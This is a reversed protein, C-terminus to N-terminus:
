REEREERDQGCAATGPGPVVDVRTYAARFGLREMNRQSGSGPTAESVVLKCGERAADALRARQLAAQVGRRRYQPLTTDGSFWAIDGNVHLEGTGAVNGDVLALYLRAGPRNIVIGALALQQPHPPLPDSFGTAAVLAWVDREEDDQAERVLIDAEAPVQHRDREVVPRILVHEFGEPVWGRAALAAVLSPHALPCVCVSGRADRSRYFGEVARIDAETVPGALGMGVVQNVLSDPEIFAAVGGAIGVCEASSGRDLRRATSVFADLEAASIAELRRALSLDAHLM